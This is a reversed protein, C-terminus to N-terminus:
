VPFPGFPDLFFIFSTNRLLDLASRSKLIAELDEPRWGVESASRATAVELGRNLLLCQELVESLSEAQTELGTRSQFPAERMDKWSKEYTEMHKRAVQPKVMAIVFAMEAYLELVEKKLRQLSKSLEARSTNPM